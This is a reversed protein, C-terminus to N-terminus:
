SSFCTFLHNVYNQQISSFKDIHLWVYGLGQKHDVEPQFKCFLLLPELSLSEELRLVFKM